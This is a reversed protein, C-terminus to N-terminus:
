TRRSSRRTDTATITGCPRDLRQGTAENGGNHKALFAAVLARREAHARHHAHPGRDHHHASSARPARRLAAHVAPATRGQSAAPEGVARARLVPSPRPHRDRVEAHRARHAADHQRRAPARPRLHVPLPHLLRHVRRRHPLAAVPATPRSRGCSRSATAARSSSSASARPRRATTARGCSATRSWTDRRRWLASSAGTPSDRAQGESAHEHEPIPGWDRFEEVNELIIVRPRRARPLQKAWKVAVWALGRIKKSVPKGGKAKSFHKCDPSFWALGVAHGCPRRRPTWTGCTRACTTPSRTTRRTCRSRRARDHNIAIDPERGLALAIGTSAGGGGAFNDVILQKM